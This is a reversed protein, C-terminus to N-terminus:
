RSLGSANGGVAAAVAVVAAALARVCGHVAVYEWCLVDPRLQADAGGSFRFTSLEIRDRVALKVLWPTESISGEPDNSPLWSPLM